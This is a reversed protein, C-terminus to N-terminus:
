KLVPNQLFFTLNKCIQLNKPKFYLVLAKWHHIMQWIQVDFLPNLPPPWISGGGWRIRTKLYRLLSLTLGFFVLYLMFVALPFWFAPVSHFLWPYPGKAYWSGESTMKPPEHRSQMGESTKDWEINTEKSELNSHNFLFLHKFISM